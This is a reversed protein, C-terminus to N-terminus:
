YIVDRASYIFGTKYGQNVTIAKFITCMDNGNSLIFGTSTPCTGGQFVFSLDTGNSLLYGSM